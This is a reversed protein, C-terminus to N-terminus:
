PSQMILRELRARFRRQQMKNQGNGDAMKAEIYEIIKARVSAPLRPSKIMRTILTASLGSKKHNGHLISWTTSRPLGLVEAQEDLTDFGAAVLADCISRIKRLHLPQLHLPQM